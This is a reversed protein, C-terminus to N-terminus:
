TCARLAMMDETSCSAADSAAPIPPASPSGAIPRTLTSWLRTAAFAFFCNRDRVSAFLHSCHVSTNYIEGRTGHSERATMLGVSRTSIHWWQPGLDHVLQRSFKRAELKNQVAPDFAHSVHRSIQSSLPPFAGQNVSRHDAPGRYVVRTSEHTDVIHHLPQAPCLTPSRLLSTARPTINQVPVDPM